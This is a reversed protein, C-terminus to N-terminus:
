GYSAPVNVAVVRAVFRPNGQFALEPYFAGAKIGPCETLM